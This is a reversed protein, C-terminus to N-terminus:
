RSRVLSPPRPITRVTRVTITSSIWASTRSLRPLWRESERSRSSLRAPRGTCRTHIDEGLINEDWDLTDLHMLQTRSANTVDTVHLGGHPAERSSGCWSRTSTASSRTARSRWRARTRVHDLIWRIKLSSFYSSLPLGTRARFFEVRAAGHVDAPIRDRAHGAVRARQLAARGHASGLRGDDRAPQHHRHRRPRAAEARRRAVRRRHGDPHQALDGGPRARGLWAAPLDARAGDAVEAVIRTSEDFVIFRTSSTGQDIAGLYTPM